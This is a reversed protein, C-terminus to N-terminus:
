CGQSMGTCVEIGFEIVAGEQVYEAGAPTGCLIIDGKGLTVLQSAREVVEPITRIMETLAARQTEKGSVSAWIKLSLFM